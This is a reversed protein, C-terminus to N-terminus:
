INKDHKTTLFILFFGRYRNANNRDRRAEDLRNNSGRHLPAFWTFAPFFWLWSLECISNVTCMCVLRPNHLYMDAHVLAALALVLVAVKMKKCFNDTSITVLYHAIGYGFVQCVSSVWSPARNFKIWFAGVSAAGHTLNASRRSVGVCLGWGKIEM